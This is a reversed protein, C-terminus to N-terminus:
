MNCAHMNKLHSFEATYLNKKLDTQGMRKLIRKVDHYCLSQEYCVM